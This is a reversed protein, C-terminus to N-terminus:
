GFPEFYAARGRRGKCPHPLCHFLTAIFTDKRRDILLDERECQVGRTGYDGIIKGELIDGMVQLNGGEGDV